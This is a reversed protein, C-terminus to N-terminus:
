LLNKPLMINFYLYYWFFIKQTTGRYIQLFDGLKRKRLFRKGLLLSTGVGEIFNEKNESQSYSFYIYARKALIDM